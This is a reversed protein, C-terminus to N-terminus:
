GRGEGCDRTAKRAAEILAQRRPENIKDAESIKEFCDRCLYPVLVLMPDDNVYYRGVANNECRVLRPQHHTRDVGVTADCLKPTKGRYPKFKM